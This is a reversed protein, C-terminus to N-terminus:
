LVFVLRLVQIKLRYLVLNLFGRGGVGQSRSINLNIVINGLAVNRLHKNLVCLLTAREKM